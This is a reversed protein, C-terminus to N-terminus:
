LRIQPNAKEARINSSGIELESEGRERKSPECCRDFPLKAGPLHDPGFPQGPTRGWAGARYQQLAKRLTGVELIRLRLKSPCVAQRSKRERTRVKLHSLQIRRVSSWYTLSFPFHSIAGVDVSVLTQRRLFSTRPREKPIYRNM